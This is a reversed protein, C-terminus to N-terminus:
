WRRVRGYVSLSIRSEQAGRQFRITRNASQGIGLANFDLSVTGATGDVSVTASYIELRLPSGAALGPPAEVRLTSAAPDVIVRASGRGMALVRAREIEAAAADRAARTAMAQSAQRLRPAAIVAIIALIALTAILETLTAGHRRRVQNMTRHQRRSRPAVMAAHATM